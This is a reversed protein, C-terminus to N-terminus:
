RKPEKLVAAIHELYHTPWTESRIALGTQVYELAERLREVEARLDDVENVADVILRASETRVEIQRVAGGRAASRRENTMGIQEGKADLIGGVGLECPRWPEPVQGEKMAEDGQPRRPRAWGTARGRAQRREPIGAAYDIAQKGQAIQGLAETAAAEVEATLADEREASQKLMADQATVPGTAKLAERLREVEARAADLEALLALPEGGHRAVLAAEAKEARKLEVLRAADVSALSKRLADREAEAADLAKVTASM